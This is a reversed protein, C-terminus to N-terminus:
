ENNGQIISIADSIGVNRSEAYEKLARARNWRQVDSMSKELEKVLEEKYAQLQSDSYDKIFEALKRKAKAKDTYPMEVFDNAFEEEATKVQEM